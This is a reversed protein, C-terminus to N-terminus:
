VDYIEEMATMYEEDSLRLIEACNTDVDILGKRWLNRTFSLQCLPEHLSVVKHFKNGKEKDKLFKKDGYGAAYAERSLFFNSKFVKIRSPNHILIDYLIRPVGNPSKYFFHNNLNVQKAKGCALDTALFDYNISSFVYYDLHNLHLDRNQLVSHRLMWDTYYSINIKRGFEQADPMCEPGFYNFRIVIDFSDIEEGYYEGNPAPGVIAVSKGEMYSHFKEEALSFKKPWAKKFSEVNGRNLDYYARLETAELCNSNGEKLAHLFEEALPFHARDIAARIARILFDVNTPETRAEAYAQEVAKERAILGCRLLGNWALMDYVGLWGSSTLSNAETDQLRTLLNGQIDHQEGSRTCRITDMLLDIFSSSLNGQLTVLADHLLSLANNRENRSWLEEALNLQAKIFQEVIKHHRKGSTIGVLQKCSRAAAEFYPRSILGTHDIEGDSVVQIKEVRRVIYARRYYQSKQETLAAVNGPDDQLVKDLCAKAEDYLDQEFFAVSIRIYTKTPLQNGHQELVSQWRNAAERWNKQSMAIEAFECALKLDHPFRVVGLGVITEAANCDALARYARSLQTYVKATVRDEYNNVIVNWIAVAEPWDKRAMAVEASESILKMVEPYRELGQNIITEAANLDGLARYARSMYSYVKPPVKEGYNELLVQWLALAQVWDKKKMIREAQKIERKLKLSLKRRTRRSILRKLAKRYKKPIANRLLAPVLRKYLSVVFLM